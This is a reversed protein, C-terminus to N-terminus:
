ARRGALALLGGGVIAVAGIVLYLMTQHTYRGTFTESLRDLPAHAANIGFGLLVIGVVLVVIGIIRTPSM